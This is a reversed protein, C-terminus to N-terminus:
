YLGGNYLNLHYNARQPNSASTFNIAASPISTPMANTAATYIGQFQFPAKANTTNDGVAAYM